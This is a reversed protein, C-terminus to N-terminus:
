GTRLVSRLAWLKLTSKVRSLAECIDIIFLNFFNKTNTQGRISLNWGVQLRFLRKIYWIGLKWTHCWYPLWMIRLSDSFCVKGSDTCYMALSRLASGLSLKRRSLLLRIWYTFYEDIQLQFDASRLGGGRTWVLTWTECRKGADEVALWSIIEQSCCGGVLWLM